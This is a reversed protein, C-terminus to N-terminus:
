LNGSNNFEAHGGLSRILELFNNQAIMRGTPPKNVDVGSNKCEVAIFQGITKGVMDSTILVPKIGILDSSKLHQNMAKTVNALGYRIPVGDKRLCVGTNNRFLRWGLKGSNLLVSQMIQSESKNM